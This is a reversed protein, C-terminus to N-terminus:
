APIRTLAWKFVLASGAVSGAMVIQQTRRQEGSHGFYVSHELRVVGGQGRWRWGHGSATKLLVTDSNGLASAHIGPHLHFRLAAGFPREPAGGEVFDEGRLDEGGAALYLKRRHLVGFRQRWGDHETELWTHGDQENRDVKVTFNPSPAAHDLCLTSHAAPGSLAQAWDGAARRTDGCNVLIRDRGWSFEFALPALHPRAGFEQPPPAGVDLLLLARKSTVREFGTAPASASPKGHKGQLQRESLTLCREVQAPLEEEGGHFLALGGDGHRFFRLMPAIRDQLALLRTASEAQTHSLFDYLGVCDRFIQLLRSPNRDVPGGDGRLQAEWASALAPTASGWRAWGDPLCAAAYVLGVLAEARPGSATEGLAVRGLHTAQRMVSLLFDHAFVEDVGQLLFHANLLWSTLRRGTAPAAWAREDWGPYRQMWGQVLSQSMRRAMDGGQAAFDDLWAFGHLGAAWAELTAPEAEIAELGIDWPAARPSVVELGAFDFRGQFLKDARAPQGPWPNDPLHPFELPARRPLLATYLPSGYWLRRFARRLGPLSGAGAVVEGGSTM